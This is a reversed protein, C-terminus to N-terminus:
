RHGGPPTRAAQGAQRHDLVGEATSDTDYM